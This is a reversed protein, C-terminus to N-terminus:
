KEQESPWKIKTNKALNQFWESKKITNELGPSLKLARNLSEVAMEVRNQKSCSAAKWFWLWRYDSNRKEIESFEKEAEDYKKLLVYCFGRICRSHLAEPDKQITENLGSIFPDVVKEPSETPLNVLKQMVINYWMLSDSYGKYPSKYEERDSNRSWWAKVASVDLPKFKEGTLKELARTIRSIVRLGQLSDIYKCLEEVVCKKNMDCLVNVAPERLKPNKQFIGVVEDVSYNIKKLSIPDVLVQYSLLYRDTHYFYEVEKLATKAYNKFETDEKVINKLEEYKLREGAKSAIALQQIHLQKRLSQQDKKIQDQRITIENGFSEIRKSLDNAKSNLPNIKEEVYESMKNQIVQKAATQLEPETMRQQIYSQIWKPIQFPAIFIAAIAIATTFGAIFRWKKVHESVLKKLDFQNHDRLRDIAEYLRTEILAQIGPPMNDDIINKSNESDTMNDSSNEKM